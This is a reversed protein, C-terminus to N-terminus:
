ELELIIQNVSRLSSQHSDIDKHAAQSSYRLKLVSIIFPQMSCWTTYHSSWDVIMDICTWELQTVKFVATHLMTRASGFLFAYVVAPYLDSPFVGDRVLQEISSIEVSDPLLWDYTSPSLQDM